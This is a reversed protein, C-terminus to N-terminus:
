HTQSKKTVSWKLCKLFRHWLYFFLRTVWFFSQLFTLPFHNRSFLHFFGPELYFFYPWELFFLFFCTVFLFYPWFYFARTKLQVRRLFSVIYCKRGFILFKELYSFSDMFENRPLTKPDRDSKKKEPYHGKKLPVSVM